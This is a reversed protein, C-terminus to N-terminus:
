PHCIGSDLHHMLAKFLCYTGQNKSAFM